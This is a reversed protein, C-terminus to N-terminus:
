DLPFEPSQGGVALAATQTGLGGFNSRDNTMNGGETWATGNYEFTEARYVSSPPDYGGFQIGATLTGGGACEDRPGPLNGGATWSGGAIQSAITDTSLTQVTVGKIDSYKAM